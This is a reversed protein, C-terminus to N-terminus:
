HDLAIKDFRLVGERTSIATPSCFNAPAETRIGHQEVAVQRLRATLRLCRHASSEIRPLFSHSCPPLGSTKQRDLPYPLPVCRYPLFCPLLLPIVGCASFGNQDGTRMLVSVKTEGLISV